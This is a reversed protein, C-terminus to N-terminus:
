RFPLLAFGLFTPGPKATSGESSDPKKETQGADTDARPGGTKSEGLRSTNLILPVSVGDRARCRPCNQGSFVRTPSFSSGCRECKFMM